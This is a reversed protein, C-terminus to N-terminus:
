AVLQGVKNTFETDARADLLLKATQLQDNVGAMWLPTNGQQRAPFTCLRACPFPYARPVPVSYPCPRRACSRSDGQAGEVLDGWPQKRCTYARSGLPGTRYKADALGGVANKAERDAGAALLAKTLAVKGNWAAQLPLRLLM